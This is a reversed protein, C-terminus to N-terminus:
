REGGVRGLHELAVADARGVAVAPAKWSYNTLERPRANRLTLRFM